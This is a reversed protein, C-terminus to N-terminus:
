LTYVERIWEHTMSDVLYKDVHTANEILILYVVGHLGGASQVRVTYSSDRAQVRKELEDVMNLIQGETIM